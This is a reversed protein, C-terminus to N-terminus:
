EPCSSLSIADVTLNREKHDFDVAGNFGRQTLNKMFYM